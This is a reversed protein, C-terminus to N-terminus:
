RIVAGGRHHRGPVLRSMPPSIPQPISSASPHIKTMFNLPSRSGPLQLVPGQDEKGIIVHDVLPIQLLTGAEALRRTLRRDAREAPSGGLIIISSPLPMPV